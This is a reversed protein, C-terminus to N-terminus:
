LFMSIIIVLFVFYSFKDQLVYRYIDKKIHGKKYTNIIKIVFILYAIFILILQILSYNYAFISSTFNIINANHLLFTFFTIINLFLFLNLTKELKICDGLDYALITNNKELKNEKIQILRKLISFSLFFTYSFFIFGIGLDIQFIEFGYLIRLIYFNTLFFIDVIKIKKTIFNYILFNIFYLYISIIKYQDSLILSVLFGFFLFIFLTLYYKEKIKKQKKLKNIKDIDKDSYDNIIYCSSTLFFFITLSYLADHYYQTEFLNGSLLLPFIILLNKPFHSFRIISLM